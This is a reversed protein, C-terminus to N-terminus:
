MVVTLTKKLLRSAKKTMNVIYPNSAPNKYTFRGTAIGKDPNIVTVDVEGISYYGPTTVVLQGRNLFEVEPAYGREIFLRRDQIEM